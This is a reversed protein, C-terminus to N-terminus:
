FLFSPDILGASQSGFNRIPRRAKRPAASAPPTPKLRSRRKGAQACLPLGPMAGSMGVRDPSSIRSVIAFVANVTPPRDPWATVTLPV